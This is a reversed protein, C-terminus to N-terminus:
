PEFYLSVKGSWSHNLPKKQLAASRKWLWDSELPNNEYLNTRIVALIVSVNRVSIMLTLLYNILFEVNQANM